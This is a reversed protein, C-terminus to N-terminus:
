TANVECGPANKFPDAIEQFPKTMGAGCYIMLTHGTLDPLNPLETPNSTDKSTDAGSQSTGSASSEGPATTQAPESTEQDQVQPTAAAPSGAENGKACGGLVSAILSAALFVRSNKKENYYGGILLYLLI